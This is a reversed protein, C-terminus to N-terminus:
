FRFVTVLDVQTSSNDIWEGEVGITLQSVPDYYIGGLVANVDDSDEYNRHGYAVEAHIADNLSASALASAVWYTEGDHQQGYAAGASISAMSALSFSLGGGVQYLDEDADGGDRWVGSIEGGIVDGAYKIEGAAGLENPYSAGEDESADELAVAMTFPGSAYTLRLQTTDGPNMAVDANDTYYCSCAGDYGYGVNGLSGSYGGGLTLEPTMAWWGWAEKGYADVTGNGDFDARIKVLAGVQGVSTDTQGVVKLDGRAKVDVDNDSDDNDVYIVGAKAYGSWTITTSAPADATPRVSIVTATDGYGPDTEALGPVVPAAGKSITVLAADAPLAPAVELQALRSNLKEIENKLASLDDAQAQLSLGALAAGCLLVTKISRM